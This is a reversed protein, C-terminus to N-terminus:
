STLPGPKMENLERVLAAIGDQLRTGLNLTRTALANAANASKLIDVTTVSYTKKRYPDAEVGIIRAMEAMGSGEAYELVVGHIIDHRYEAAAEVEDLLKEVPEQFTPEDIDRAWRRLYRLKRSLGTRPVIPTPPRLHRAISIALDIGLELHAWSISLRGIAAFFAEDEPTTFQPM